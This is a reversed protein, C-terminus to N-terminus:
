LIIRWPSIPLLHFGTIILPIIPIIVRDSIDNLPNQSISLSFYPKQVPKAILLTFVWVCLIVGHPLGGFITHASDDIFWFSKVRESIGTWGICNEIV